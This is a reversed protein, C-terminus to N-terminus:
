PLLADAMHTKLLLVAWVVAFFEVSKTRQTTITNGQQFIAILIGATDKTCKNRDHMM